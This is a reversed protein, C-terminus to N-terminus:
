VACSKWHRAMRDVLGLVRGNDQAHPINHLVDISSKTAPHDATFRSIHHDNALVEVM